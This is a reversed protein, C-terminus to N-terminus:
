SNMERIKASLRLLRENIKNFNKLTGKWFVTQDAGSERKLRNAHTIMQEVERLKRNIETIHSNIKQRTNKSEDSVFDSYNAESVINYAKRALREWKKFYVNTPEVEVYIDDMNDEQKELDIDRPPKRRFIKPTKPQGLGGDLDSTINM